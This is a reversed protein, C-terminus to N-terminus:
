VASIDLLHKLQPLIEDWSNEMLRRYVIAEGPFVTQAFGSLRFHRYESIARAACFREISLYAIAQGATEFEAISTVFFPTTATLSRPLRVKELRRQVCEVLYDVVHPTFLYWDEYTVVFPFSPLGNPTWKSRGSIADDMNKYLQVVAGALEDLSQELTEGEVSEKAEQRLRRAKCEIFINGTADSVIWDVGHKRQGNIEYPQEGIVAFRDSDFVEHLVSGVYREFARGYQDGFPTGSKLLDYFLGETVRRFLLDPFPCWFVPTRNNDLNILPRAELANWTFAWSEDYRQREALDRRVEEVTAGTMQFFADRAERTVGVASYDQAASTDVHRRAMGGIALALTYKASVSLGTAQELRPALEHDSYIHFARFMRAEDRAYQWRAQQHVLTHLARMASSGSDITRASTGESIRRIHNILRLLGDPTSLADRDGAAHLLIERCLIHLEWVYVELDPGGARTRLKLVGSVAARQQYQWVRALAPRLALRRIENRLPKYLDFINVM